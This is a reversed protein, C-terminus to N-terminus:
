CDADPPTTAPGTCEVFRDVTYHAATAPLTFGTAGSDSFIHSNDGLAITKGAIAGCYYSNSNITVNSLPAYVVFNQECAGAVQTNSSLHISTAVTPSGVFYMAINTAGGSASTIRSNSSLRLQETGAPLGCAEPSDFYISVTSGPAIYVSTNSSLDLRCFSYRSGGLTVSSNSRLELTRTAATWTVHNNSRPDLAFFRGNDNVTAADGQNVPPLVLLQQALTGCTHTSNNNLTFAGALGYAVNGCIGASGSLTISGNSAATATVASESAMTLWDLAKVTADGFIQQGSASHATVDVRRTVGDVTATSVIELAGATPQVSYSYTGETVAGNVPACWGGSTAALFVTGGSSVLCPTATTTPIRNYHLLAQSVGAEAAALAAKVNQDRSAGRQATVAAMVAVSTIAFAALLSFLVAPVAFGRQSRGGSPGGACAIDKWSPM